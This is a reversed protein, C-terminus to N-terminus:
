KTYSRLEGVLTCVFYIEQGGSLGCTLVVAFARRLVFTTQVNCSRRQDLHAQVLKSLAWQILTLFNVGFRKQIKSSKMIALRGVSVNCSSSMMRSHPSVDQSSIQDFSLLIVDGFAVVLLSLYKRTMAEKIEARTLHQIPISFWIAYILRLRYVCQALNFRSQHM